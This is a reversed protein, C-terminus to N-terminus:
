RIRIHNSSLYIQKNLNIRCKEKKIAMVGHCTKKERKFTWIFSWKLYQEITTLIKVDVNNVPNEISKGFIANIKLKANQKKIKNGEKEAERWM